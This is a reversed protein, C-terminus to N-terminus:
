RGLEESLVEAQKRVTEVAKEQKDPPYRDQAALADHLAVKADLERQRSPQGQETAARLATRLLRAIM